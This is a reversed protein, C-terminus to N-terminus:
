VGDEGGAPPDFRGTALIVPLALVAGAVISLLDAPDFRGQLFYAATNDLVPIFRFWDPLHRVLWEALNPQQGIEFLADTALWAGCIGLAGRWGVRLLAATLLCLAFTHLFTPLQQGLAGFLGLEGSPQVADALLRPIFYTRDAPRDLLYLLGGLALAALGTFLRPYNFLNKHLNAAPQPLSRPTHRPM